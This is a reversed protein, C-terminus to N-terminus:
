WEDRLESIYRDVAERSGHAGPRGKGVGWFSAYSRKPLVDVETPQDGINAKLGEDVLRELVEQPTAHNEEILAQIAQGRPSNEPIHLDFAM